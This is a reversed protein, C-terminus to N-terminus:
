QQELTFVDIHCAATSQESLANKWQWGQALVYTM